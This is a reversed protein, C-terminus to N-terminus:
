TGTLGYIVDEGVSDRVAPVPGVGRGHADCDAPDSLIRNRNRRLRQDDIARDAVHDLLLVAEQAAVLVGGVGVAQVSVFAPQRVYDRVGAGAAEDRQDGAPDVARQAKGKRREAAIRRHLGHGVSREGRVALLDIEVGLARVEDAIVVGVAIAAVVVGGSVGFNEGHRESRRAGVSEGQVGRDILRDAAFVADGYVEVAADRHGVGAAWPGVSVHREVSRDRHDVVRRRNARRRRRQRALQRQVLATPM